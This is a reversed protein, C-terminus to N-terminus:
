SRQVFAMSFIPAMGSQSKVLCQSCTRSEVRWNKKPSDTIYGSIKHTNSLNGFRKVVWSWELCRQGSRVSFKTCQFVKLRILRRCNSACDIQAYLIQIFKYSNTTHPKSVSGASSWPAQPQAPALFLNWDDHCSCHHQLISELSRLIIIDLYTWIMLATWSTQGNPDIECNCIM